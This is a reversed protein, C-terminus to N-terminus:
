SENLYLVYLLVLCFYIFFFFFIQPRIKKKIRYKSEIHRSVYFRLNRPSNCDNLTGSSWCSSSLHVSCGGLSPMSVAVEVVVAVDVLTGLDLVAGPTGFDVVLAAAVGVLTRAM